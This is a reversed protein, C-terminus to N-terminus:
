LIEIKINEEYILNNFKIVIGCLEEFTKAESFKVIYEKAIKSTNFWHTHFRRSKEKSNLWLDLFSFLLSGLILFITSNKNGDVDYVVAVLNIMMLAITWFNLFYYLAMFTTALWMWGNVGRIAKNVLQEIETANNKEDNFREFNMQPYQKRKTVMYFIYAIILITSIAFLVIVIDIVAKM